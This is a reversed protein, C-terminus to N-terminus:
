STPLAGFRRQRSAFSSLAETLHDATFDPWAVPTFYLEAYAMQWLLFNSIRQEGSTRIVLDPDPTPSTDLATTFTAETIPQGSNQLHQAARLIEDRGSYNIAFTATLATCHATKAEVDAMIQLINPSIRGDTRNGIFRVRLGKQIITELEKFFYEEMLQFLGTVEEMPRKWNETSFAYFTAHPVGLTQLHELVTRVTAVGQAHGKLRTLGRASAWRGNGDMIFAIHQPLSSM